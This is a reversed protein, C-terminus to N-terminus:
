TLDLLQGKTPSFFDFIPLIVNNLQKIIDNNLSVEGYLMIKSFEHMCSTVSSDM